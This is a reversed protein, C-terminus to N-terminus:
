DMYYGGPTNLVRVVKAAQNCFHFRARLKITTVTTTTSFRRGSRLLHNYRQSLAGYNQNVFLCMPGMLGIKDEWHMGVNLRGQSPSSHCIPPERQSRCETSAFRVARSLLSDRMRSHRQDLSTLKGRRHPDKSDMKWFILEQSRWLSM